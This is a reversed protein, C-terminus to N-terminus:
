SSQRCLKEAGAVEPVIEKIAKRVAQDSTLRPEWGLKRMKGVDFRVQPVDGKWGRDGGTYQFLVEPLGMEEVVLRAITDVDTTSESGLNFFNVREQSNELGYLMGEVCDGVWLYPKEQTGDGLIELQNPNRKLKHVFDYIVGHTARSGVINAFRFIWSRMEFTHCFASILAESAVKGAGYLSIPLVPGYNEPLPVVPTEGYITGSSSFVMDKINNVRMAELVNYTAITELKLDLDTQEEGLRADPNAALHFVVKHSKMADRLEQWHLLDAEVFNFNPRGLHQVIFEVKGSSLNDYVTVEGQEVLRDVLHSGIFGAGGTVFYRM